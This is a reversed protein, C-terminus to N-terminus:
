SKRRWFLLTLCSLSPDLATGVAAGHVSSVTKWFGRGRHLGGPPGKLGYVPEEAPFNEQPSFFTTKERSHAM